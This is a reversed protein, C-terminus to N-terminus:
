LDFIKTALSEQYKKQLKFKAVYDPHIRLQRSKKILNQGYFEIEDPHESPMTPRKWLEDVPNREFKFFLGM